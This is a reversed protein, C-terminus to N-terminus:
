GLRALIRDQYDGIFRRIDAIESGGAEFSAVIVRSVGLDRYAQVLELDFTGNNDYSWPWITIPFDEPLIRGAERAACRLTDLRAALDDPSIVYPFFGDGRLGARRAAAASSGGILLPVGGARAPKTDCFVREFQIFEGQYTAPDDRWLTRMADLLEDLRKGRHQYPVGVAAYEEKQWGIGIGAELRGGSLADLTALRKALVAASHQPGILVGTGLRLTDTWAAAFSLWHLPDPMQTTPLVPARGNDSYDYLPEYDEAMVVHEPMWVSEVGQQELMQVFRRVWAPDTTVSKDCLPIVGLKM